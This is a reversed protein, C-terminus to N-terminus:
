PIRTEIPTYYTILGDVAPPDGQDNHTIRYNINTGQIGAPFRIQQEENTIQGVTQWEGNDVQIKLIAGRARESVVVCSNYTKTLPTGHNSRGWEIDMPITDFNDLNGTEDRFIRGTEDMFYPKTYGNMTHM